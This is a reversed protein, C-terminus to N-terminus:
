TITQFLIFILYLFNKKKLYFNHFFHVKEVFQEFHVQLSFSTIVIYKCASASLVSDTAWCERLAM